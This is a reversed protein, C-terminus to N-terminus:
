VGYSTVRPASGGGGGDTHAVAGINSNRPGARILPSGLQPTFDGSAPTSFLPDQGVIDTVDLGITSPANAINNNANNYYLNWGFVRPRTPNSDIWEVGNDPSNVFANGACLVTVNSTSRDGIRLECGYFVTWLYIFTGINAGPIFGDTPSHIVCGIFTQDNQSSTVPNKVTPAFYCGYFRAGTRNSVTSSVGGGINSYSCGTHYGTFNPSGTARHVINFTDFLCNVVSIDVTASSTFCVNGSTTAGGTFSILKWRSGAVTVDFAVVGSAISYAYRTGDVVGSANAGVLYLSKGVTVTSAIAEAGTAMMIITDFDAATAFAHATTAWATGTTLGDNANNGGVPNVYYTAM